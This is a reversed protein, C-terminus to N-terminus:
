DPFPMRMVQFWEGVTMKRTGEISTSTCDPFPVEIDRCDTIMDAAGQKDLDAWSKGAMGAILGYQSMVLLASSAREYTNTMKYGTPIHTVSFQGFPHMTVALGPCSEHALGPVAEGEQESNIEVTIESLGYKYETSM